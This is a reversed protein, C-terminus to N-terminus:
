AKAEELAKPTATESPQKVFTVSQLLLLPWPGRSTLNLLLERIAGYLLAPGNTEVLELARDQPWMATDVNFLGVAHVEGSYYVKSSPQPSFILKLTVQFRNTDESHRGIEVGCNLNHVAEPVGDPHTDLYVKTFFHRELRLPSPQM